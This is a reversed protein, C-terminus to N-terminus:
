EYDSLHKRGRSRPEEGASQCRVCATAWPVLELRKPAIEEECRECLGFDEPTSRLKNLAKAIQRMRLARERNRSSAISQMMETLPAEDEDPQGVPDKRAPEIDLDGEERLAELRAELVTRFRRREDADVDSLIGVFGV